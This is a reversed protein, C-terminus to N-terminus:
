GFETYFHIPDSAFILTHRTVTFVCIIKILNPAYFFILKSPSICDIIKKLNQSKEIRKRYICTGERQVSFLFNPYTPHGYVCMNNKKAKCWRHPRTGFSGVVLFLLILLTHLKKRKSISNLSIYRCKADGSM